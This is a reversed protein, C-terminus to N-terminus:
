TSIRDADVRLAAIGPHRSRLNRLTRNQVRTLCTSDQQKEFKQRWRAVSGSGEAVEPRECLAIVDDCM